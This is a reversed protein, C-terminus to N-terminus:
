PRGALMGNVIGHLASRVETGTRQPDDAHAITLAAADLAGILIHALPRVPASALEGSDMAAQLLQETMGLSYREAIDRFGNWGLVNPADLLILQRIERESSIDLWADVAAHLTAAPTPPEQALVAAALRNMVDAEVAEVVDLFLASKDAYQHYMAGRTVGARQAIEPTGVDAYGREGWLERAAARLADQTAASRQAQTRRTTM